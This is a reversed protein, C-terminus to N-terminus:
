IIITHADSGLAEDVNITMREAREGYAIVGNAVLWQTPAFLPHAPPVDIAWAIPHGM